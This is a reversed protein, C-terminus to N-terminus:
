ILRSKMIVKNQFHNYVKDIYTDLYPQTFNVYRYFAKSDGTHGSFKKVVHEPMGLMLMTTVATRRMVHSSILDCFRYPKNATKYIAYEKGRKTRTKPVTHTWGAKAAIRKLNKNFQNKSIPPLLTKRTRTKANLDQLIKLAYEPIKVKTMIETKKNKANLYFNDGVKEIDTFRIKMLDSFRLGVTCGFVL